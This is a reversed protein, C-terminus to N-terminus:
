GLGMAQAERYFIESRVYREIRGDLEGPTPPRLWTRSFRAALQDVQEPTVVIRREGPRDTESTLDFVLFLIAGLVLFHILPERLLKRM